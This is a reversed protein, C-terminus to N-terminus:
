GGVSPVELLLHPLHLPLEEDVAVADNAPRVNFGGFPQAADALERGRVLQHLSGALDRSRRLRAGRHLVRGHHALDERVEAQEVRRARTGRSANAPTRSAGSRPCAARKGTPSSRATRAKLLVAISQKM